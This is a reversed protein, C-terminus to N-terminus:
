RDLEKLRARLRAAAEDYIALIRDRQSGEEFHAKETIEKRAQELEGLLFQLDARLAVARGALTVYVPSSHAFVPQGFENTGTGTVRVALWCAEGIPLMRDIRAAYLGDHLEAPSTGVVEGNQVLELRGFDVRGAASAEIRLETPEGLSITDGPGSTGVRFDLLPSNTIFTRGGKLATLWSEPTLEGAVQAYARAFDYM